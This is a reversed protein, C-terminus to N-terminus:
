QSCMCKEDETLYSISLLAESDDDNCVPRRTAGKKAMGILRKVIENKRVAGTLQVSVNVAIKKLDEVRKLHLSDRLSAIDRELLEKGHLLNCEILEDAMKTFQKGVMVRSTKIKCYRRTVHFDDITM